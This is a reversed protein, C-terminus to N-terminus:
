DKKTPAPMDGRPQRGPRPADTRPGQQHQIEKLLENSFQSEAMQLRLIKSAPIVKKYKELYEKELQAVKIKADALNDVMKKAEEESIQGRQQRNASQRAERNIANKKEQLEFFIPFFKEAEQDTLEAMGTMFKQQRDRYEEPSFQQAMVPRRGEADMPGVQGQKPQPRQAIAGASLLICIATFLLKKM